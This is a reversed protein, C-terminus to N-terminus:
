AVALGHPESGQLIPVESELGYEGISAMLDGESRRPYITFRDLYENSFLFAVPVVDFGVHSVTVVAMGLSTCIYELDLGHLTIQAFLAVVRHIRFLDDMTGHSGTRTCRAVIGVSGSIILEQHGNALFQTEDAVALVEALSVNLLSLVGFTHLAVIGVARCFLVMQTLTDIGTNGGQVPTTRNAAKAAM